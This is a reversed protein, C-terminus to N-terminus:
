FYPTKKKQFLFIFYFDLANNIKKEDRGAM